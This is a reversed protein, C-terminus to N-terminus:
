RELEDDNDNYSELEDEGDVDDYYSGSPSYKDYAM